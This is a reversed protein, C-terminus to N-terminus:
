INSPRTSESHHFSATDLRTGQKHIVCLIQATGVKQQCCVGLILICRDLLLIISSRHIIRKMWLYQLQNMGQSHRKLNPNSRRSFLLTPLARRTIRNFAKVTRQKKDTSQLGNAIHVEHGLCDIQFYRICITM